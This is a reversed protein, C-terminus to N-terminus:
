AIKQTLSIIEQIFNNVILLNEDKKKDYECLNIQKISNAILNYSKVVIEILYDSINKDNLTKEYNKNWIVSNFEIDYKFINCIINFAELQREANGQNSVLVINKYEEKSLFNKCENMLYYIAKANAETTARIIKIGNYLAESVDITNNKIFKIIFLHILSYIVFILINFLIYVKNNLYKINECRNEKKTGLRIIIIDDLSVGLKLYEIVNNATEISFNYESFTKIANEITNNKLLKICDKIFNEYIDDTM